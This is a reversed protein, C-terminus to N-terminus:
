RLTGQTACATTLSPSVIGTVTAIGSSTNLRIRGAGGGGAGSNEATSAGTGSAGDVTTGASGAGGNPLAGAAPQDDATADAGSSFASMGGGGNAGLNGAVTISPAELLIAGGSGGGGSGDTNTAGAGGANIAGFPRIIISQGAVIQIAGGGASTAASVGGASGGVLPTITPAGYVAGGMAAPPTLTGGSGGVGCYSGGGGNSAPTAPSSPAQGAGPGPSLGDAFGGPGATAGTGNVLLQGQIDVTDLVALIIPNPGALRLGATQAILLSKLVYIDALTGDDMAITTPAGPLCNTCSTMVSAVPANSWNGGADGADVDGPDFNSPTFGLVGADPNPIFPVDPPADSTSDTTSDAAAGESTIPGDAGGDAPAVPDYCAGGICSQDAVLCPQEATCANRCQLNVECVLGVPCSSSASCTSEGPLECVNNNGVSVCTQGSPCDRSANCAEHCLSFVCILPSNCDSNLVCGSALGVAAPKSSCSAAGALLPLTVPLGLVLSM